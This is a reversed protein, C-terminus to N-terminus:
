KAAAKSRKTGSSKATSSKSSTSSGGSSGNKSGRSRTSSSTSRGNSSGSTSTSRSSGSRSKARTTSSRGTSSSSRKASSSRGSSSSRKASTSRGGSSSRGSSSRRSTSKVKGDDIRGRWAGTEEDELELYAKFRALDARVARKIHRMGRGAKEILSGPEVMVTVQVRTLRDSLEHFSVAGAHSIGEVVHWRILEDPRQEDIEARFQKSIGWIKAKFVVHTDDEQSAQDIRHMFKPWDEFQTWQNYATKIPVAIDVSQEIPMRRTQSASTSKAKGGGGGGGGPMVGDKVGEGVKSGAKKLQGAGNSMGRRALSGAGKAAIPALAALGAGAAFGKGGSLLGDSSKKGPMHLRPKPPSLSMRGKRLNSSVNSVTDRAAKGLAEGIADAVDKAM